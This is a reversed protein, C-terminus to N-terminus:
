EKEIIDVYVASWSTGYHTIGWVYEDLVYSYFILENTINQLYKADAPTILYWQFIDIDYKQHELGGWINCDENECSCNYLNGNIKNDRIDNDLESVRNFLYINDLRNALEEYSINEVIKKTKNM